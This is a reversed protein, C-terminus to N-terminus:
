VSSIRVPIVNLLTTTYLADLNRQHGNLIESRSKRVFLTIRYGFSKRVITRSNKHTVRVFLVFLRVSESPAVAKKRHTRNLM